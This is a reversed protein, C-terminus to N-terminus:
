DKPVVTFQVDWIGALAAARAVPSVSGYAAERAARIHLQIEEGQEAMVTQMWEPLQDTPVLRGAILCDGNAKVNIVVRDATQDTLEGSNAEPLSLPLQADSRALHSSVLFFIILLFVVDIMPTM